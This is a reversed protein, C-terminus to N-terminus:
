QRELVPRVLSKFLRDAHEASVSQPQDAWWEVVRVFTAAVHVALLGTDCGACTDASTSSHAPVRVMAGHAIDEALRETLQRELEAHVSARSQGPMVHAARREAVHRLIPLSFALLADIRDQRNGAHAPRRYHADLTARMGSRLLEDKDRFHAYFTSRGVNARALIEKVVIGGYEREHLLSAMADHLVRRTRTIRRDGNTEHPM